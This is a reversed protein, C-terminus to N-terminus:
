LCGCLNNQDLKKFLTQAEVLKLKKITGGTYGAVVNETVKKAETWSLGDIIRVTKM